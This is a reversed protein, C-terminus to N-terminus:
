APPVPEPSPEFMKEQPPDRARALRPEESRLGLRGLVESAKEPDEVFAV